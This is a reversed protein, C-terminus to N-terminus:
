LVLLRSAPTVNAQKLTHPCYTVSLTLTVKINYISEIAHPNKCSAALAYVTDTPIGCVGGDDLLRSIKLLGSTLRSDAVPCPLAPASKQQQNVDQSM